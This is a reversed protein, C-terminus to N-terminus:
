KDLSKHMEAVFAVAAIGQFFASVGEFGAFGQL